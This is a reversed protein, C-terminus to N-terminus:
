NNNIATFMNMEVQLINGIHYLKNILIAFYM